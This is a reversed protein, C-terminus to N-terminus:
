RVALGNAGAPVDVFPLADLSGDAQVRFAALTNTGGVLDYLFQGNQTFVLDSPKGGAVGSVGDADLLAIHGDFDIRYGSVTGSGTNAIYAFRGDPSIASWCASSQQDAASATITTLIGDSGLRYSSTASAGAAGGFAESVVLQGRKGFAFGFPTVGASDQLLPAGAVGDHDVPFVAIKNTNKETVVLFSGDPSFTIEAPGTGSGGLSQVSGALSALHGRSDLRFGAISDSGANVVYVLDRNATVSIPQTGGSSVIDTLTLSSEGVAFVSVDNSGANVALLWREDPTLRVGGQNGLGSGSGLGGTDVSGGSVLRGDALRDFVLISNAATANSATYVAGLAPNGAAHAPAAGAALPAAAVAIAAIALALSNKRIM